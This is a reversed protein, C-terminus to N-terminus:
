PVAGTNSSQEGRMNSISYRTGEAERCPKGEKLKSQPTPRYNKKSNQVLHEQIRGAPTM